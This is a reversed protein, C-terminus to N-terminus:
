APSTLLTHCCRLIQSWSAREGRHHGVIPRRFNTLETDTQKCTQLAVKLCIPRYYKTLTHLHEYFYGAAPCALACQYIFYPRNRNTSCMPDLGSETQGPVGDLIVRNMTERNNPLVIGHQQEQCSPKGLENPLHSNGKDIVRTIEEFRLSRIEQAIGPHCPLGDVIAPRQEARRGVNRIVADVIEPNRVFMGVMKMEVSKALDRLELALAYSDKVLFMSRGPHQAGKLFQTESFHLFQREIL